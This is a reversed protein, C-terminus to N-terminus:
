RMGECHFLVEQEPDVVERLAAESLMTQLNLFTSEPIFGINRDSLGRVDVVAVGRDILTRAEAVSVTSAGEVELPIQNDEPGMAPLGGLRLGERLRERDAVLRFPWLDVETLTYRGELQVDIGVQIDGPASRTREDRRRSQLADLMAITAHAERTLGLYGYAAALVILVRDDGPNIEMALELAERARQYEVASFLALGRWFLYEDPYGPDLRMAMEIAKLGEAPLGNLTQAASLAEYGLPDNPAAAIAAEAATIADDYNSRWLNLQSEVQLTLSSRDAGASRVNSLVHRMVDDPKLGLSRTWEGIRVTFDRVLAAQYVAARAAHARLYGSDNAVAADFHKIALAFTRPTNERFMAWGRQFEARAEANVTDRTEVAQRERDTLEVQLAAVVARTVDDQLGLSDGPVGDFREGWVSEGTLADILQVNVRITEAASRVSGELVYRVALREAVEAPNINKGKFAFVSNRAVVFLRSLKSLDTIMDDTMGDALHEPQAEQGIARFPLVAISPVEPLPFAMRDPSASVTEDADDRLWLAGAALAMLLLGTTLLALRKLRRPVVRSPQAPAVAKEASPDLAALLHQQYAADAHRHLAQLRALGIKLDPTLGVEELYIPIIRKQEDLAFNIERNCHASELSKGSVYFLVTSARQLAEAIEARWVSGASIGEDYWVRIGQDNLWEIESYVARADDHAYCVFVFPEDGTYAPLKNV